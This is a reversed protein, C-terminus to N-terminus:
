TRGVIIMADDDDGGALRRPLVAQEAESLETLRHGTVLWVTPALTVPGMHRVHGAVLGTVLRASDDAGAPVPAAEGKVDLVVDGFRDLLLVREGSPHRALWYSGVPEPAPFGVKAAAEAAEDRGVPARGPVLGSALAVAGTAVVRVAGKSPMQQVVVDLSAPAAGAAVAEAEVDAVLADVDAGEASAFTREREVRVLSLADGVSSIVEAAPPVIVQYGLARALARGVGGAGGGVAVLKPQTLQHQKAVATVLDGLLDTTATIMRRAVEEGPLRLARGAVEFAALAAARDGAAYDGEVVMGLANAACTNTLAVNRGDILRLVLYDDPDGPKPAITVAEAGAYDAASGFCAYALGAIHASRPGVGFVRRKRARLMSGGAVGAVRVDLARVATSHRGVQVYALVPRGGKIAAVNSSTGGVEVIVADGIAGTRLAGAVSAAPGSYLTLAPARRFGALDTAGGDGRMVMVPAPVGVSAVGAQVVEATRLAIPLISANLAGTLTRLELGYLGSLETSTTAPLGAEAALAAVAAENSTDDPAFAEAVCLAGVGASRLRGVAARAGEPDFGGTTDLFEHVTRLARSDTLDIRALATRKRAKGVHPATAMGLIGVPVVDGELLANVAQTTSHTVLEIADPGLGAGALEAAILRVVEVVGAAVGDPHSHTTPVVARAVVRADGDLAVAKTFTGGVDVGVRVGM